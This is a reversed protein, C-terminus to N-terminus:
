EQAVMGPSKGSDTLRNQTWDLLSLERQSHVYIFGESVTNRGRTMKKMMLTLDTDNDEDDDDDDRINASALGIKTACNDPCRLM